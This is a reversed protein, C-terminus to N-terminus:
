PQRAGESVDIAVRRLRSSEDSGVRVHGSHIHVAAGDEAPAILTPIADTYLALVPVGTTEEDGVDSVHGSLRAPGPGSEPSKTGTGPGEVALNTLTRRIKELKQDKLEHSLRM